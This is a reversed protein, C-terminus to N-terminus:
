PLEFNQRHRYINVLKGNKFTLKLSNFFGKDFCFTWEDIDKIIQYDEIQFTLKRHPGYDNKDLPYLIYIEKNQYICKTKEFSELKTDGINLGYANGEIVTEDIYTFWCYTAYSIIVIFVIAIISGLVMALRKTTKTM